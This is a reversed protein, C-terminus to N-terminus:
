GMRVRVRGKFALPDKRTLHTLASVAQVIIQEKGGM